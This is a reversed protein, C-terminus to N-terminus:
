CSPDTSEEPRRGALRPRSAHIRTGERKADCRPQGLISKVIAVFERTVDPQIAAKRRIAYVTLCGLESTLSVEHLQPDPQHRRSAAVLGIGYGLAVFRRITAPSQAEVRRPQARFLGLKKLTRNLDQSAFSSPSNVLPFDALDNVRVRRKRALPHDRPAVLIVDLEYCPEYLLRPHDPDAAIAALGLDALMAAVATEVQEAGMESLILRVHPLERECEAVCLPLDEILLRSSAAVTLQAERPTGNSRIAQKLSSIGTVLPGAMEALLRGAETSQCGRTHTEVLQMGLHHELAHVQKWVTPRALGLSDAAATLSGLRVTECFSRLQLLTIEKYARGSRGPTPM